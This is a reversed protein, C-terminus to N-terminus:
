PGSTRISAVRTRLGVVQSSKVQSSKVQSYAQQSTPGTVAAPRREAQQMVGNDGGATLTQIPADRSRTPVPIM